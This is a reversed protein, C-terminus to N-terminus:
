KKGLKLIRVFDLLFILQTQSVQQSQGVLVSVFMIWIHRVGYYDAVKRACELEKLHKQNYYLSATVVNEKGYKDVAMAVLTTSDCGGSNLILAHM